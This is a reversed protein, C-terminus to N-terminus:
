HKFCKGAMVMFCSLGYVAFVPNILITFDMYKNRICKGLGGPEEELIVHSSEISPVEQEKTKIDAFSGSFAKDDYGADPFNQLPLPSGTYEQDYAASHYTKQNVDTTSSLMHVSLLTVDSDTSAAVLSSTADKNLNKHFINGEKVPASQHNNQKSLEDKDKGLQVECNQETSKFQNCIQGMYQGDGCSQISEKRECDNQLTKNDAIISINNEVNQLTVDKSNKKPKNQDLPRFLAGFVMGNLCIGGIIWTAGKWGYVRLLMECLPAFIFGGIESGCVAVGTAFARHKEFYFGVMVIAPLYM